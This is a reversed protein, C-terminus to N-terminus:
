KTMVELIANTQRFIWKGGKNDPFCMMDENRGWYASTSLTGCLGVHIYFCSHPPWGRLVRHRSWCRRENGGLPKISVCLFCELNTSTNLGFELMAEWSTQFPLFTVVHSQLRPVPNGYKSFCEECSYGPSHVIGLSCSQLSTGLSANILVLHLTECWRQSVDVSVALSLIM